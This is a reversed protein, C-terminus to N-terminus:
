SRAPVLELREDEPFMGLAVMREYGDATFRRARHVEAAM